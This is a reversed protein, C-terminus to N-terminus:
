SSWGKGAPFYTSPAHAISSCLAMGGLAAPLSGVIRDGGQVNGMGTHGVADGTRRGTVSDQEQSQAPLPLAALAVDAWHQQEETM